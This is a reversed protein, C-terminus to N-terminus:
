ETPARGDADAAPPQERRGARYVGIEARAEIMCVARALEPELALDSVTRTVIVTSSLDQAVFLAAKANLEATLRAADRATEYAVTQTTPKLEGIESVVMEVRAGTKRWLRPAVQRRQRTALPYPSTFDGLLCVVPGGPRRLGLGGCRRGTTVLISKQLPCEGYGSSWVRAMVAGDAAVATDGQWGYILVDGPRVPDGAAVAATGRRVLVTEVVGAVAAVVDGPQQAWYADAPPDTRRVAEIVARNGDLHIEVFFLAPFQAAIYEECAACDLRWRSVGPYLGAERALAAVRATAAADLTGRGEVEVTLLLSALFLLLAMLLLAALPLLPRRRLFRLWFPAGRRRRFRVSCGARAAAEGLTPLAPLLCRASLGAPGSRLDWLEVGAALAENLFRATADATTGGIEVTVEGVLLREPDSRM